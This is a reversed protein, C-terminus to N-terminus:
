IIGRSRSHFLFHFLLPSTPSRGHHDGDGHSADGVVDDGSRAASATPTVVGISAALSPRPALSVVFVLFVFLLLLALFVFLFLFIPVPSSSTAEFLHSIKSGTKEISKQRDPGGLIKNSSSERANPKMKTALCSQFGLPLGDVREIM